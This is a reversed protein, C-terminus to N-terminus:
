WQMCGGGGGGGVVVNFCFWGVWRYLQEFSLTEVKYRIASINQLGINERIATKFSNMSFFERIHTAWAHSLM